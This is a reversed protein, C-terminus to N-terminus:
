LVGDLFELRFTFFKNNVFKISLDFRAYSTSKNYQRNASRLLSPTKPADEIAVIDSGTGAAGAFITQYHATIPKAKKMSAAGFVRLATGSM